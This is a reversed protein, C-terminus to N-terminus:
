GREDATATQVAHLLTEMAPNDKVSFSVSADQAAIGFAALANVTKTSGDPYLVKVVSPSNRELEALRKKYDMTNRWKGPSRKYAPNPQTLLAWGKWINVFSVTVAWLWLKM